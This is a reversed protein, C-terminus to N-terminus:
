NGPKWNLPPINGDLLDMGKATITWFWVEGGQWDPRKDLCKASELYNLRDRIDSLTVRRRRQSVVFGHISEDTVPALTQADRVYFLIDHDLDLQAQRKVPDM